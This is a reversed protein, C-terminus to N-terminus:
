LVQTLLPTLFSPGPVPGATIWALGCIRSVRPLIVLPKQHVGPSHAAFSHGPSCGDSGQGALAAQCWPVPNPTLHVGDEDM